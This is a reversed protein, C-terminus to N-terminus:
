ADGDQFLATSGPDQGDTLRLLLAVDIEHRLVDEPLAELLPRAAPARGPNPVDIGDITSEITM